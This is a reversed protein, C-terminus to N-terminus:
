LHHSNDLSLRGRQDEEALSIRGTTEEALSLQGPSAGTLRAQIEAIAQRTARRLSGDLPHAGACHRLPQVSHSSGCRALAAAAATRVEETESELAAILSPEATASGLMGLAEAAAVALESRTSMLVRCLDTVGELRGNRGVMDACAKAVSMRGAGAAERLLSLLRDPPFDTGLAAIARVAINEPTDHRQALELLISRGDPGLTIAARLRVEAAPDALAQQQAPRTAAHTPFESALTILNAIRVGPVPDEKANIAIREALDEPRALQQGLKVLQKLAAPVCPLFSSFLPERIEVILQNDSLHTRARFERGGEAHEVWLRGELLERLAGRTEANFVARVLATSGQM